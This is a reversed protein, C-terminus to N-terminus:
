PHKGCLYDAPKVELELLILRFHVSLLLLFNLQCFLFPVFVTQCLFVVDGVSWCRFGGTRIDKDVIEPEIDM